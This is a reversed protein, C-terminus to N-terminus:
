AVGPTYAPAHRGERTPRDVRRAPGGLRHRTPYCSAAALAECEVPAVVWPACAEQTTKAIPDGSSQLLVGEPSARGPFAGVPTLVHAVTQRPPRARIVWLVSARGSDIWVRGDRWLCARTDRGCRRRDDRSKSARKLRTKTVHTGFQTPYGPRGADDDPGVRDALLVAQAARAVGEARRRHGAQHGGLPLDPGPADRERAGRLSRDMAGRAASVNGSADFV